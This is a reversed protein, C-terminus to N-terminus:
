VWMGSLKDASYRAYLYHQVISIGFEIDPCKKISVANGISGLYICNRNITLESVSLKLLENIRDLYHLQGTTILYILEEYIKYQELLRARANNGIYELRIDEIRTFGADNFYARDRYLSILENPMDDVFKVDRQALAEDGECTLALDVRGIPTYPSIPAAYDIIEELCIGYVRNMGISSKMMPQGLPDLLM